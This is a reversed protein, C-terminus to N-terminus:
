RGSKRALVYWDWMRPSRPFYGLGYRRMMKWPYKVKELTKLEFHNEGALRVIEDRTFFKQRDGNAHVYMQDADIRGLARPRVKSRSSLEHLYAMTDLSPFVALLLGGQKICSAIQRVMESAKAASEPATSNIAIAADCSGFLAHLDLLDGQALITQPGALMGRECERVANRLRALSDSGVYRAVQSAGAQLRDHSENLMASSFDIGASVGVKGAVLQLAEGIGCGFDIITRHCATGDEDWQRLLDRVDSAFRFRVEPSFPSIVEAHYRPAIEDWGFAADSTVPTRTM